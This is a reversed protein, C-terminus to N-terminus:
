VRTRRKYIKLNKPKVFVTSSGFKETFTIQRKIKKFTKVSKENLIGIKTNPLETHTHKLGM